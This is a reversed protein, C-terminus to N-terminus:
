ITSDYGIYQVVSTQTQVKMLATINTAKYFLTQALANM